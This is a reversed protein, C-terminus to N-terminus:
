VVRVRSTPETGSRKVTTHQDIMSGILCLIWIVTEIDSIRLPRDKFTIDVLSTTLDPDCACIVFGSEGLRERSLFTQFIGLVLKFIM